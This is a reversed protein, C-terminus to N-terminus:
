TANNFLGGDYDIAAFFHHSDTVVIQELNATADFTWGNAVEVSYRRTRADVM